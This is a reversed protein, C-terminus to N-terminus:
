NDSEITAEIAWSVDSEDTEAVNEFIVIIGARAAGRGLNVPRRQTWHDEATEEGGERIRQLEVVLEGQRRENSTNQVEVEVGVDTPYSVGAVNEGYLVRSSVAHLGPDPDDEDSCGALAGVGLLTM